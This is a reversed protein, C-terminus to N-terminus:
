YNKIIIHKVNKKKNGSYRKDYEIINFDKFLLVIIWIKELIFYIKANEKRIDNYFIYEYINVSANMYFDNCTSLYPPDFLILCEKNNRYENYIEIWDKNYFEINNNNFFNYIPLEKLNIKRDFIQLQGSPFLNPRISFNRNGIYWGILNKKKIIENYKDKEKNIYILTEYYLKEFEDIKNDDIMIEYMEKLFNNNDNFIYNIGKKNLSIYYSMACSGCFPEIITTIGDFNLNDYIIEVEERKNGTYGFYFHNKM